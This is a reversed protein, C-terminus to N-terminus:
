FLPMFNIFAASPNSHNHGPITQTMHERTRTATAVLKKKAGWKM